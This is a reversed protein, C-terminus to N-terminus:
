RGRIVLYGSYDVLVLVIFYHSRDSSDFCYCASGHSRESSNSAALGVVAM